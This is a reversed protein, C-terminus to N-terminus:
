IGSIGAMKLYVQFCVRPKPGTFFVVGCDDDVWTLSPDWYVWENVKIAM